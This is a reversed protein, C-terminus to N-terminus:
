LNVMAGKNRLSDNCAELLKVVRLGAYGDNIPAKNNMICSVFSQAELQLAEVQEIRPVWMDGARYSVLLQYIGERNKVEIGKDYVKIKEHLGKVESTGLKLKIREGNENDYYLEFVGDVLPEESLNTITIEVEGSPTVGTEEVGLKGRFFYNLLGASYGVARPHTELCIRRLM